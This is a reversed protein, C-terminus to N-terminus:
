LHIYKIFTCVHIRTHLLYKYEVWLGDICYTHIYTHMYFPVVFTPV